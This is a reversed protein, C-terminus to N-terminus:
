WARGEGQGKEGSYLPSPFGHFVSEGMQGDVSDNCQPYCRQRGRESGDEKVEAVREDVELRHVRTADESLGRALTIVEQPGTAELRWRELCHPLEGAERYPSGPRIVLAPLTPATIPEEAYVTVLPV